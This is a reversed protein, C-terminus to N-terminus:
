KRIEPPPLVETFPLVMRGVGSVMVAPTVLPFTVLVVVSVLGVM